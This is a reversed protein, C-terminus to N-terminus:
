PVESTNRSLDPKDWGLKNELFGKVLNEYAETHDDYAAVHECESFMKLETLEQNAASLLRYAYEPYAWEDKDCQV